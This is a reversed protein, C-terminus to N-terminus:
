ADVRVQQRDGRAGTLTAYVSDNFWSVDTSTTRAVTILTDRRGELRLTQVTLGEPGNKLGLRELALSGSFGGTDSYFLGGRVVGSDLPSEPMVAKLIDALDFRGTEVAASEYDGAPVTAVEYFQKGAMR